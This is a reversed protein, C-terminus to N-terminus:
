ILATQKIERTVKSNQGTKWPNKQFQSRKAQINYDHVGNECLKSEIKKSNILLMKILLGQICFSVLFGVALLHSIALKNWLLLLKWKM